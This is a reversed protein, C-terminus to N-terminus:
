PYGVVMGTHRVAVFRRAAGRPEVHAPGSGLVRVATEGGRGRALDEVAGGRVELAVLEDDVRLVAGDRAPLRLPLGEHPAHIVRRVGSVLAEGEDLVSGGPLEDRCVEVLARHVHEVRVVRRDRVGAER